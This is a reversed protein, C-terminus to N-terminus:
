VVSKRDASSGIAGSSLPMLPSVHLLPTSLANVGLKSAINAIVDDAQNEVRELCKAINRMNRTLSICFVKILASCQAANAPNPLSASGFLDVVPGGPSGTASAVGSRSRTNRSPSTPAGSEIQSDDIIPKRKRGRRSERPLASAEASKTETAAAPSSSVADPQAILGKNAFAVLADADDGFCIVHAKHKTWGPCSFPTKDVVNEPPWCVEVEKGIYASTDALMSAVDVGAIWEALGLRITPTPKDEFFELLCLKTGASGTLTQSGQTHPITAVNQQTQGVESTM